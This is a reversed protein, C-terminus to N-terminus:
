NSPLGLEVEFLKAKKANIQDIEKQKQKTIDRIKDFTQVLSAHVSNHMESMKGIDGPSLVKWNVYNETFTKVINQSIRNVSSTVYAKYEADEMHQFGNRICAAKMASKVNMMTEHLTSKFNLYDPHLVPSGDETKIMEGITSSFKTLAIDSIMLINEEVKSM